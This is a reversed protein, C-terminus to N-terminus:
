LFFFIRICKFYYQFPFASTTKCHLIPKAQLAGLQPAGVEADSLILAVFNESWEM